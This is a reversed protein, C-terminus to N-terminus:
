EVPSAITALEHVPSSRMSRAPPVEDSGLESETTGSFRFDAQRPALGTYQFRANNHAAEPALQAMSSASTQALHPPKNEYQGVAQYAPQYPPLQSSHHRSQQQQQPAFAYAAADQMPPPAGSTPHYHLREFLTKTRGLLFFLVAALIAVAAAGIAIGVIAGTSLASHHHTAAAASTSAASTSSTPSATTGATVTLTATVTAALARLSTLAANPIAQGPQLMYNAEAALRKQAELSGSVNANIVGLMSYGICSGPAGCYYWIPDTTIVTLNWSPLPGSTNAVPQFGSFFGPQGTVDESPICPFGYVSQIVSHNSPYFVFTVIDGPTATINNPSFRNQVEGVTITHITIEGDTTTTSSSSSSEPSTEEATTLGALAAALAVWITDAKM